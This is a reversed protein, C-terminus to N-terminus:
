QRKKVEYTHRREGSMRLIKNYTEKNFSWKVGLHADIRFRNLVEFQALGSLQQNMDDSYILEKCRELGNSVYDEILQKEICILSKM